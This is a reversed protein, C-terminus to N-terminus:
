KTSIETQAREFKYKGVQAIHWEAETRIRDLELLDITSEDENLMQLITDISLRRRTLDYILGIQEQTM